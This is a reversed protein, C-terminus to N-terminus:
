WKYIINGSYIDDGIKCNLKKINGEFALDIRSGFKIMGLYEGAQVLEPTKESSSIRRPLFGAIQTVTVIGHDTRLTHIKKENFRSKSKNIVINFQGTNDYIRKIVEGNVPYIQTHGNFVSMFISIHATTGKQEIHTINGDAPSLLINNPYRKTCPEYRYFILLAIFVVVSAIFYKHTYTIVMLLISIQGIVPSEKFLLSQM